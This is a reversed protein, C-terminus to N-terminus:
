RELTRLLTNLTSRPSLTSPDIRWNLKYVPVRRQVIEGALHQSPRAAFGHFGLSHPGDASLKVTRRWIAAFEADSRVLRNFLYHFSLYPSIGLLPLPPAFWAATTAVSQNLPVDLARRALRRWGVDSLAHGLYYDVLAERMRQVIYGDAASALFWSAALRDRGPRDFAFFGSRLCRPLWEDLPRVCFCTADAWVGGHRSLLDLRALESLRYPRQSRAEPTYLLPHVFRRMTQASLLEVEWGPNRGIWSELCARPVPPMKERGQAWLIWIRRPLGNLEGDLERSAPLTLTSPAPELQQGTSV